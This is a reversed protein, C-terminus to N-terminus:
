LIGCSYTTVYDHCGDAIRNLLSNLRTTLARCDSVLSRKSTRDELRRCIRGVIGSGIQNPVSADQSLTVFGATAITVYDTKIM